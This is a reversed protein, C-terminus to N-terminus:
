MGKLGEVEWAAVFNVNASPTNPNTQDATILDNVLHGKVKGKTGYDINEYISHNKFTPSM